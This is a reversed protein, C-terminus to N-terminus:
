APVASNAERDERSRRGHCLFLEPTSAFHEVLTPPMVFGSPDDAIMETLQSRYADMAHRKAPRHCPADFPLLDHSRVSSGANRFRGWVAYDRRVLKPVRACLRDALRSAAQHDAHPDGGWTVWVTGAEVARSFAIADSLAGDASPGASSVEGDPLDLM